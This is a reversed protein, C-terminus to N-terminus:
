KLWETENSRHQTMSLTAICWSSGNRLTFAVAIHYHLQLVRAHPRTFDRGGSARPFSPSPTTPTFTINKRM